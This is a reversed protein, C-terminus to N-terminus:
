APSGSDFVTEGEKKRMYLELEAGIRESDVLALAFIERFVPFDFLLDPKISHKDADWALQDRGSQVPLILPDRSDRVRMRRGILFRKVQGDAEFRKLISYLQLSTIHATHSSWDSWSLKLGHEFLYGDADFYPQQVLVFERACRIATAISVTVADMSPLHELFHSLLVFRVTGQLQSRTVDAVIAEFGAEQARRVKREDIDLGLGRKGDLARRAFDISGGRSCGFDLFDYGSIDIANRVM